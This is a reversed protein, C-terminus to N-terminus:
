ATCSCKLSSSASVSHWESFEPCLRPPVTSRVSTANGASCCDAKTGPWDGTSQAAGTISRKPSLVMSMAGAVVAEVGQRVREVRPDLTLLELVSEQQRVSELLLPQLVVLVLPPMVREFGLRVRVGVEVERDVRQRTLGGTATGGPDVAVAVGPHDDAAPDRCRHRPGRHRTTILDAEPVAGDAPAPETVTVPVEVDTAAEGEKASTAEDVTEGTPEGGTDSGAGPTPVTVDELQEDATEDVPEDIPESEPEPEPEADQPTTDDAPARGGRTGFGGTRLRRRLLPAPSGDSETGAAPVGAGALAAASVGAAVAGIGLWM